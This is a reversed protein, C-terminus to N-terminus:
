RALRCCLGTQELYSYLTREIPVGSEMMVNFGTGFKMSVSNISYSDFVSDLADANAYLFGAHKCVVEKIIDQQFETLNDFGRAVIRNFTLTDVQRSADTLFRTIAEPPIADYGMASYEDATVYPTYM